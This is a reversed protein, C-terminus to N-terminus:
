KLEITENELAANEKKAQEKDKRRQIAQGEESVTLAAKMDRELNDVLTIAFNVDPGKVNPLPSNTMHSRVAQSLALLRLMLVAKTAPSQSAKMEKTINRGYTILCQAVTNRNCPHKPNNTDVIAQAFYRNAMIVMSQGHCLTPDNNNLYLRIQDVSYDIDQSETVLWDSNCDLTPTVLVEPPKSNSWWSILAALAVTGSALILALQLSYKRVIKQANM